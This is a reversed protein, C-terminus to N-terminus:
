GEGRLNTRKNKTECIEFTLISFCSHASAGTFTKFLDYLILVEIAIECVEKTLNWLLGIAVVIKWERSQLLKGTFEVLKKEQGFM